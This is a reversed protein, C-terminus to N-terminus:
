DTWLSSLESQLRYQSDTDNPSYRYDHISQALLDRNKKWILQIRVLRSCPLGNAVVLFHEFVSVSRCSKRHERRSNSDVDHIRCPNTPSPSAGRPPAGIPDEIPHRCHKRCELGRAANMPMRSGERCQDANQCSFDPMERCKETFDIPTRM